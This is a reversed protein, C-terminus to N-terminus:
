HLLYRWGMFVPVFPIGGRVWGVDYMKMRAPVFFVRLPIVTITIGGVIQVAGGSM